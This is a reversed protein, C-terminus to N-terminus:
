ATRKGTGEHRKQHMVLAYRTQYAKECQDCAFTKANQDSHKVLMHRKLGDKQRFAYGCCPCLFPKENTHRRMHFTLSKQQTFGQDCVACVFPKLNQHILLHQKLSGNQTFGKNCLPCVFPKNGDHSLLHRNLNTKTSFPKNCKVCIFKGSSSLISEKLTSMSTQREGSSTEYKYEQNSKDDASVCAKEIEEEQDSTNGDDISQTPDQMEEYNPISIYFVQDTEEVEMPDEGSDDQQEADADEMSPEDQPLINADYEVEVVEFIDKEPKVTPKEQIVAVARFKEPEHEQEQEQEQEPVNEPEDEQEVSHTEKDATAVETGVGTDDSKSETEQPQTDDTENAAEALEDDDGDIDDSGVLTLSFQNNVSAIFQKLQRDSFESKKKFEFAIKMREVCTDCIKGPLGDKEAVEISTCYHFKSAYQYITQSANSKCCVRCVDIDIRISM